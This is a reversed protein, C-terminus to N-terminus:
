FPFSSVLLTDVDLMDYMGDREAIQQHIRGDSGNFIPCPGFRGGAAESGPTNINSYCENQTM